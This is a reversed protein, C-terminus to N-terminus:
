GFGHTDLIVQGNGLRTRVFCDVNSQHGDAGCGCFCPMWRLVDPREIAYGYAERTTEAASKYAAPWIGRAPDALLPDAATPRATASATPRSVREACATAAFATFSLLLNRRRM